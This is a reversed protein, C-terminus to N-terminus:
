RASSALSPRFSPTPLPFCGRRTSPALSHHSLLAAPCPLPHFLIPYTATECKSCPLPPVLSHATPFLRTEHKSRALPPVLPCCSLTTPPVPHSITGDRVQLSPPASRPLPRHSVVKVRAQLLRTTPRPALLVPYHTSCSLTIPYPAIECKSHPLPPVLSHATPFLKTERKSRCTAPSPPVGPCPTLPPNCHEQHFINTFFPGLCNLRAVYTLPLPQSTAATGFSVVFFWGWRVKALSLPRCDHHLLQESHSLCFGWRANALSPLHHDHRLPWRSHSWSLVVGGRSRLSTSTTVYHGARAFRAPFWGWRM